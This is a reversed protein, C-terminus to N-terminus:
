RFTLTKNQVSLDSNFTIKETKFYSEVLDDIVCRKRCDKEIAEFGPEKRYDLITYNPEDELYLFRPMSFNHSKLCFEYCDRSNNFDVQSENSFLNFFEYLLVNDRKRYIKNLEVIILIAETNNKFESFYIKFPSFQTIPRYATQPENFFNFVFGGVKLNLETPYATPEHMFVTIKHNDSDTSNIKFFGENHNTINGFDYLKCFLGFNLYTTVNNAMSYTNNYVYKLHTQNLFSCRREFEFLERITKNVFSPSHECHEMQCDDEDTEWKSSGNGSEKEHCNRQLHEMFTCISIAPISDNQKGSYTVEMENKYGSLRVVEYIFVGFSVFLILEKLYYMKVLWLGFVM